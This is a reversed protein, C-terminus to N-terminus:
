EAGKNQAGDDTAGNLKEDATAEVGRLRDIWRQAIPGVQEPAKYVADQLVWRVADAMAKSVEIFEQTVVVTGHETSAGIASRASATEWALKAAHLADRIPGENFLARGRTDWWDAFNAQAAISPRPASPKMALLAQDMHYIEAEFTSGPHPDIGKCLETWCRWAENWPTESAPAAPDATLPGSSSGQFDTQQGAANTQAVVECRHTNVYRLLNEVDCMMRGSAGDQTAIIAECWLRHDPTGIASPSASLENLEQMAIAAKRWDPGGALALSRLWEFTASKEELTAEIRGSKDDARETM